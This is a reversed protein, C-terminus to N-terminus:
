LSLLVHPPLPYSLTFSAPSILLKALQSDCTVSHHMILAAQSSAVATAAAAALPAALPPFLLPYTYNVVKFNVKFM